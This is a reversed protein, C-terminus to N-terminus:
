PSLHKEHFKEFTIFLDDITRFNNTFCFPEPDEPMEEFHFRQLGLSDPFQAQYRELNLEKHLDHFWPHQEEWPWGLIDRGGLPYDITINEDLEFLRNLKVSYTYIVNHPLNPYRNNLKFIWRFARLRAITGPTYHIIQYSINRYVTQERSHNFDREHIFEHQQRWYEAEYPNDFVGLEQDRGNCDEPTGITYILQWRHITDDDRNPLQM